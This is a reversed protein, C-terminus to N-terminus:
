TSSKDKRCADPIKQVLPILVAGISNGLSIVLIAAFARLSWAGAIAFYYMDAVCHEFGCLIFGAVCAFLILPNQTKKYGDVAVYMLIGCFVGLILLSGMNDATKAACMITAKERLSAFRTARVALGALETGALNGLWIILLDLLYIPKQNPLYGIKGTYLNLGHVCISYLGVAFFLAGAIKNDIALFATGGIGIAVGALVAGLFLKLKQM